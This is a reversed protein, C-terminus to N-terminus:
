ILNRRAQLVRQDAQRAGPDHGVTRHLLAQKGPATPLRNAAAVALPRAGAFRRNGQGSAPGGTIRPASATALIDERHAAQIGAVM